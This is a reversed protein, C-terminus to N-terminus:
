MQSWILLLMKYKANKCLFYHPCDYLRVISVRAGLQRFFIPITLGGNAVQILM